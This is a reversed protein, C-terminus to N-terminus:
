NEPLVEEKKSLPAVLLTPDETTSRAAAGKKWNEHWRSIVADFKRRQPETLIGRVEQEATMFAQEFEASREALIGRTKIRLQLTIQGLMAQQTSDLELEDRLKHEAYKAVEDPGAVALDRISKWIGGATIGIGFIVGFVFILLVGLFKKFRKM